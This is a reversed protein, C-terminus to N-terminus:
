RLSDAIDSRGLARLAGDRDGGERVIKDYLRRSDEDLLVRGRRGDWGKAQAAVMLPRTEPCAWRERMTESRSKRASSVKPSPLPISNSFWFGHARSYKSAAAKTRGMARAAQSVTMGAKACEEWTLMESVGQMQNAGRDRERCAGPQRIRRVHRM